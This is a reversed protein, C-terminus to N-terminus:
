QSASNPMLEDHNILLPAINAQIPLLVGTESQNLLIRLNSNLYNTITVKQDM